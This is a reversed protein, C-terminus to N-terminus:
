VRVGTWCWCRADRGGVLDGTKSEGLQDRSPAEELLDNKKNSELNVKSWSYNASDVPIMRSRGDM